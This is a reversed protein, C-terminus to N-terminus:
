SCVFGLMRVKETAKSQWNISTSDARYFSNCAVHRFNVNHFLVCIECTYAWSSASGHPWRKITCKDGIHNMWWGNFTHIERMSKVICSYQLSAIKCDAMVAQTLTGGASTNPVPSVQLLCIGLAFNPDMLPSFSLPRCHIQSSEIFSIVSLYM